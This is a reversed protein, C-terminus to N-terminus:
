PQNARARRRKRGLLGAAAVGLLSLAAPEPTAAAAAAVVEGTPLIKAGSGALTSGGDSYFVIESLQAATLGSHSSGVFLRDTGGGVDPTGTWNLVKLLSFGDWAAGSSDAFALTSAGSGMDIASTATLTVAGLGAVGNGSGDTGGESYGATNLTGGALTVAATDNVQNSAALTLSGGTLTVASTNALAPGSSAALALTGANVTTAGSYTNAGTLTLQRTSLSGLAFGGAGGIVGAYSADARQNVTFLQGGNNIAATNLGSSATAITGSLSGVTTNATTSLNLTTARSAGTNTNNVALAGTTAGLASTGSATLTGLNITTGGSFTNKGSLTLTLNNTSSNLLTLSGTGSITAANTVSSVPDSTFATGNLVISGGTAAFNEVTQAANNMTLTGGTVSIDCIPGCLSAGNSVTIGGANLTVSGNIDNLGGFTIVGTGSKVLKGNGTTVGAAGANAINKIAGTFTTSATGNITLTGTGTGVSGSGSLAAIQQNLGNLNLIGPSNITVATSTPLTNNSTRIRLEGDNIFTGGTWTSNTSAFALVGNGAKTLSGSGSIVTGVQIINLVNTPNSNTFSLTGGGSGMILATNTGFFTGANGPNTTRLTGGNLTISAGAASTFRASSDASLTAGTQISIANTGLAVVGGAISVTGEEVTLGGVTQTGTVTVTYAGTADSGASFVATDGSVWAGTVGTAGTSDLTWLDSATGAWTGTPTTGAGATAGNGDWYVTSAAAQSAVGLKLTSVAAAAAILRLKKKSSKTM